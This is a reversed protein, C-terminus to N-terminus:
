STAKNFILMCSYFECKALEVQQEGITKNKIIQGNLMDAVLQGGEDGMLQRALTYAHKAHDQSIAKEKDNDTPNAYYWGLELYRESDVIDLYPADAAMFRYKTAPNSAYDLSNEDTSTVKGFASKIADLDSAAIPTVEQAQWASVDYQIPTGEIATAGDMDAEPASTTEQQEAPTETTETVQEDVADPASDNCATLSVGAALTLSLFLTQLTHKPM